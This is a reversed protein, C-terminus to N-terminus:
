KLVKNDSKQVLTFGLEEFTQVVENDISKMYEIRKPDQFNLGNIWNNVSSYGVHLENTGKPIYFYISCPAFMGAQPVGRNFISNSFEFHCLLSVWYADYKDFAMDRDEYEFKLDIFGAIIFNHQSFAGDHAGVFEDIWDSLDDPTKFKKVLKTLSVAPLHKTRDFKRAMTPKMEKNVLADFGGVMDTFEKRTAPDKEGIISLMTDPTLHGFWTNDDKAHDLTKYVLFNFPAFAGFDPNKLLLPRLKEVNLVDFFSIMDVGKEKFKQYYFNEIHTNAAITQFGATGIKGILSKIAVEQNGKVGTLVGTTMPDTKLSALPIIEPLPLPAPVAAKPAEAHALGLSLVCVLAINKLKM